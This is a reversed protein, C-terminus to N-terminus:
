FLVNSYNFHERITKRLFNNYDRTVRKLSYIKMDSLIDYKSNTILHVVYDEVIDVDFQYDYICGDSVHAWREMCFGGNNWNHIKELKKYATALWYEETPYPYPEYNLVNVLENVLVESYKKNFLVGEMSTFYVNQSYKFLIKDQSIIEWWDGDKKESVGWYNVDYNYIVNELNPNVILSNSATYYIYDFELNNLAWGQMEIYVRTIWGDGWNSPYRFPFLYCFSYYECLREISKYYEDSSLSNVHFLIASNPCITHINQIYDEVCDAAEFVPILFVIKYKINM